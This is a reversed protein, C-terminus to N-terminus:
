VSQLDGASLNIQIELGSIGGGAKWMVIDENQGAKWESIQHCVNDLGPVYFDLM